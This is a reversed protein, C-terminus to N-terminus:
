YGAKMRGTTRLRNDTTGTMPYVFDEVGIEARGAQDDWCRLHSLGPIKLAPDLRTGKAAEQTGETRWHGFFAVGSRTAAQRRGGAPTLPRVSVGGRQSM